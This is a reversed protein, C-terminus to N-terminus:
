TGAEALAADILPLSFKFGVRKAMERLDKLEGVTMQDRKGLGFDALARGRRIFFDTMELPEDATYTELASAYRRVESWNRANLLADMAYAYFFFYNHSTAGAQLIREGERLSWDRDKDRRAAMAAAGLIWPGMFTEATAWSMEYAELFSAFAISGDGDSSLACRGRTLAGWVEFIKAGIRHAIEYAREGHTKVATFDGRLYSVESLLNRAILEARSNGTALAADVASLGTDNAQDFKNLFFETWALM